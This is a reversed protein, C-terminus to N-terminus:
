LQQLLHEKAQNIKAALYDSGGHDPHYQKMLQRHASIIQRKSAGQKLGLVALAEDDTMENSSAHPGGTQGDFDERWTPHRTDLFAQLLHPSQDGAKICEDLLSLLQPLELTSLQSGAFQGALVEGDIKGSDHDLEMRLMSTRVHSSQGKAKKGWPIDIGALHGMGLLGLGFFFLPIAIALGGKLTLIIALAIATVGAVKRMNTKMNKPNATAMKKIGLWVLGLIAMAILLQM